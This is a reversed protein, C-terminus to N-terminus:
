PTIEYVVGENLPGGNETTGYVNGDSDLTVGSAYPFQGDKGGQFTHLIQEAWTGDSGPTLKFVTGQHLGGSYTTGYVSGAADLALASNASAGDSGGIFEHIIQRTWTGGQNQTFKLVSYIGATYLNGQKDIVVDGDSELGGNGGTFSYIIRETWTGNSQPALQFLVGYDKPGSSAMGYLNGATDFTVGSYPSAGDDKGTFTHLTKDTWSGDAGLVLELVTGFGDAGGISPTCYLNGMADFVVGGYPSAGDSGGTFSYIVKETWTGNAEPSLEFIAGASYTGGAVAAGYLNGRGDATLPGVPFNGDISNSNGFTYIVKENWTGNANPTLEFATGQNLLGGFLAVGYLNGKGDSVLGGQPSYGDNGNGFSYLIKETQASANVAIYATLLSIGLILPSWPKHM